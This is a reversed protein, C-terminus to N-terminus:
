EKIELTKYFEKLQELYSDSKSKTNKDQTTNNAEISQILYNVNQPLYMKAYYNGKEKQLKYIELAKLQTDIPQKSMYITFTNLLSLADYGRLSNEQFLKIFYETHQEKEDAAYIKALMLKIKPSNDQELPKISAIAAAPNNANLIELAVGIVEYSQDNVIREKLIPELIEKALEENLYRM